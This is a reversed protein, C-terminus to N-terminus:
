AARAINRREAHVSYTEVGLVTDGDIQLSTPRDFSVTIDYGPLTEVMETHRVHKGNFISPFVMLTKFKNPCYMVVCSVTGAENQRDQGPACMMGGGYYRGNMTPALWVHEYTRTVGDVTVTANRPEFQYMLGKLAIVTYNIKGDSQQRQRDGEECCYGDIGYGVNNLFRHTEGKVTVSPLNQLYPNLLVLKTREKERVDNMFDNGSGAPFYYVPHEPIDDQCENIFHYITGDGGALIVKDAPDANRLFEAASIKTVDLYRIDESKLIEDLQRAKKEGNRNASLPNYLVYIM